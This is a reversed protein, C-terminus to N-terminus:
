RFRFYTSRLGFYSRFTEGSITTSTRAGVLRIALVRGGWQGDGDRETVEARRFTGLAPFARQVEGATVTDTWGRYTDDYPDPKAVLYPVSGAAVQGGNSASFQTFAPGGARTRLVQRRTAAVARDTSAVEDSSGGYVQSSTTDDVHWARRARAAREFVVYSRAAVAQARLAAPRWSTYVERPVVGRVYAELPVVNVTDGGVSRLAGRYPRRGSPTVLTVPAGGAALEADGPVTKVTRWPGSSGRWAVKSRGTPTPVVRWYRAATPRDLRTVRGSGLSRVRLGPRDVVVVGTTTDATILVKVAGGATGPRLAPYYFRLIQQHSRGREAQREAGWQSLGHGHGYGNGVLRLTVAVRQADPAPAPEVSGAPVAHLFPALAGVLALAAHTM